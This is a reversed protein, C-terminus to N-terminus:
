IPNLDASRSPWAMNEQSNNYIWEKRKATRHNADNNQQYNWDDGSKIEDFPLMEDSILRCYKTSDKNGIM